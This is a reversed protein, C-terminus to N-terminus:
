SDLAKGCGNQFDEVKLFKGPGSFPMKMKWLERFGM